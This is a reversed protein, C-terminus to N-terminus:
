GLAKILILGLVLMVGAALKAAADKERLLVVGWVISFLLSSSRIGITYATNGLSLAVLYLLTYSAVVGGLVTFGGMHGGMVKWSRRPALVLVMFGLVVSLMVYNILAYMYANANTVGLKDLISGFAQSAAVLVMMRVSANGALHYLPELLGHRAHGVKLMYIGFLICAMGAVGPWSPLEHLLVAGLGITIVPALSLIPLALSLEEDRIARYYFYTEIPGCVVCIIVTVLWFSPSLENLPIFLGPNIIFPLVFFPTACLRMGFGLVM